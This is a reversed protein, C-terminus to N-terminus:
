GVFSAIKLRAQEGHQRGLERPTGAAEILPYRFVKEQLLRPM